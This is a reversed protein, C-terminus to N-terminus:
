RKLTPKYPLDLALIQWSLAIRNIMTDEETAFEGCWHENTVSPYITMIGVGGPQPVLHASPPFRRCVRSKGIEHGQRVEVSYICNECNM